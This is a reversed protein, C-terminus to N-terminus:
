SPSLINKFGEIGNGLLITAFYIMKEIPIKKGSLFWHRYLGLGSNYIFCILLDQEVDNLPRVWEAKTWTEKVFRMILKTGIRQYSDSCVLNDYFKGANASFEYFKRTIEGINEPASYDKISELYEHVVGELVEEFLADLSQYYTYFTKRGIRAYKCLDSVTLEDYSNESVLELFSDRILALTKIVRLDNYRDSINLAKSGYCKKDDHKMLVLKSHFHTMPYKKVSVTTTM